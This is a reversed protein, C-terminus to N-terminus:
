ILKESVGQVDWIIDFKKFRGIYDFRQKLIKINPTIIPLIIETLLEKKLSKTWRTRLNAIQNTKSKLFIILFEIKTKLLNLINKVFGAIVKNLLLGFYFRLKATFTYTQSNVENKPKRCCFRVFWWLILFTLLGSLLLITIVLYFLLFAISFHRENLFKEQM